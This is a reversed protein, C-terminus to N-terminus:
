GGNLFEFTIGSESIVNFQTSDIPNIQFEIYDNAALLYIGSFAATSTGRNATNDISTIRKVSGDLSTTGNKFVRFEAGRNDTSAYAMLKYNIRYYGAILARFQSTTPTDITNALFNEDSIGFTLTTWTGPTAGSSQLSNLRSQIFAFTNNKGSYSM